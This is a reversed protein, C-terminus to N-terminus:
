YQIDKLLKCMPTAKITFNKFHRQYFSVAGFSRKFKIVSTSSPMNTIINIKKHDVLLGDECVIHGLLVRFNICFVCNKPNLSIDNNRCQTMCKKLHNLHEEKHGYVSFDDLFVQMFDKFYEKFTQTVVKQFTALANCLEFLM